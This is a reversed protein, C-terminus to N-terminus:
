GAAALLARLAAPSVGDRLYTAQPPDVQCPGVYGDVVAAAGPFALGATYWATVVLTALGAACAAALGPPSDEVAVAEDPTVGVGRLALDYAQPDPKLATVDDNTVVAAFQTRPFLRALLPEVWARSGTTAVAVAVGADALGGMLEAVGPRALVPGDRVWRVFLETKTAHVATTLAELDDSHGQAALFGRLRQRGGAVALLDAYTDVDWHYPLGHHTFADNFAVRHGDRETEALTGDVDFVVARLHSM